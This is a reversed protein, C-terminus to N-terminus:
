TINGLWWFFTILFVFKSGKVVPTEKLRLMILGSPSCAACFGANEQSVRSTESYHQVTHSPTGTWICAYAHTCLDTIDSVFMIFLKPVSESDFVLQSSLAYLNDWHPEPTLWAHATGRRISRDGGEKMRESGWHMCLSWLDCLLLLECKELCGEGKEWRVEKERWRRERGKKAMTQKGERHLLAAETTDWSRM